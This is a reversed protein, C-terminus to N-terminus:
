PPREASVHAASEPDEWIKRLKDMSKEWDWNDSLDLYKYELWIPDDGEIEDGDELEYGLRAREAEVYGAWDIGFIDFACSEAIHDAIRTCYTHIVFAAYRMTGRAELIEAERAEKNMGKLLCSFTDSSAYGFRASLFFLKRALEPMLDLDKLTLGAEEVFYQELESQTLRRWSNVHAHITRAPHINIQQLIESLVLLRLLNASNCSQPDTTGFM